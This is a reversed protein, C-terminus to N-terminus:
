FAACTCNVRGEEWEGRQWCAQRPPPYKMKRAWAVSFGSQGFQCVPHRQLIDTYCCKCWWCSRRMERANLFACLFRALTFEESWHAARERAQKKIKRTTRKKVREREKESETERCGNFFTDVDPLQAPPPRRSTRNVICEGCLLCIGPRLPLTFRSWISSDLISRLSPM